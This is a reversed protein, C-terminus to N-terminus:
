PIKTFSMGDNRGVYKGGKENLFGSSAYVINTDLISEITLKRKILEDNILFLIDFTINRVNSSSKVPNLSIATIFFPFSGYDNSLGSGHKRKMSFHGSGLISDQQFLISLRENGLIEDGYKKIVTEDIQFLWIYHDLFDTNLTIVPSIFTNLWPEDVLIDKDSLVQRELGGLFYLGNIIKLLEQNKRTSSLSLNVNHEKRSNLSKSMELADKGGTRSLYDQIRNFDSDSISGNKKLLSVDNKLEELASYLESIEEKKLRGVESEVAKLNISNQESQDSIVTDKLLEYTSRYGFYEPFENIQKVKEPFSFILLILTGFISLIWFWNSSYNSRRPFLGLWKRAETKPALNTPTATRNQRKKVPKKNRGM